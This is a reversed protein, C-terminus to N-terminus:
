MEAYWRLVVNNTGSPPATAFTVTINTADYTVYFNTKADSSGATILATKPTGALGHAITFTTQSGNGSFTATGGNETVYGPNYKTVNGTGVNRIPATVLNAFPNNQVINDNSELNVGYRSKNNGDIKNGLIVQRPAWNPVWIEDRAGASEASNGIFTNCIVKIDAAGLLLGYGYNYLVQNSFFHANPNVISIAYGSTYLNNKILCNIIYPPSGVDGGAIHLAINECYEIIVHDLVYHHADNTVFGKGKFDSIFIDRAVFDWVKGAGTPAFEIGNGATNVSRSGYLTM